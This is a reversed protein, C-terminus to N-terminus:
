KMLVVREVGVLEGGRMLRLTYVGESCTQMNISSQEALVDGTKVLRGVHDYIQYVPNGLINTLSINFTGSNPNPYIRFGFESENEALGVVPGMEQTIVVQDGNQLQIICSREPGQNEDYTFAVNTTYEGDLTDLELWSCGESLTWSQCTNGTVTVTVFSSGAAALVSITNSSIAYDCGGLVTITVDNTNSCGNGDSVHLTYTTTSLPTASPNSLSYGNLGSNSPSWNYNFPGNGSASPNGGLTVSQGYSITQNNGPFVQPLGNVSVVVTDVAECGDASTVTVEYETETNPSVMPTAAYADGVGTTPEWQYTNGSIEPTGVLVSDGSCIVEDGGANAFPLALITVQIQASTGSCGNPDVVSVSYNGASYIAITDNTLGNNWLYTVMGDEAAVLVSDGPCISLDGLAQIAPTLTTFSSCM